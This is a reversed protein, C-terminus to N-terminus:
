KPQLKSLLADDTDPGELATSLTVLAPLEMVLEEPTWTTKNWLIETVKTVREADKAPYHKRVVTDFDSIPDLDNLVMLKRILKGYGTSIVEAAEPTFSHQDLDIDSPLRIGCFVEMWWGLEPPRDNETIVFPDQYQNSKTSGPLLKKEFKYYWLARNLETIAVFTRPGPSLLKAHRLGSIQSSHLWSVGHLCGKALSVM